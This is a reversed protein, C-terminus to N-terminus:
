VNEKKRKDDMEILVFRKGMFIKGMLLGSLCEWFARLIMFVSLFTSLFSFIV